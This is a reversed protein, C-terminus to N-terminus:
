GFLRRRFRSGKSDLTVDESDHDHCDGGARIQLIISDLPRPPPGFLVFGTEADYAAKHCPCTLCRRVTDFTVSCGMHACKRSHAFFEGDAACVLVAVDNPKPYSFYMFSGPLLREAGEIKMPPYEVQDRQQEAGEAKLGIAGLAFASTALLAGNCFTRRTIEGEIAVQKSTM